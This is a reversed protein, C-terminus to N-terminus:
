FAMLINIEVIGLHNAVRGDRHLDHVAGVPVVHEVAIGLLIGFTVIGERGVGAIQRLVIM